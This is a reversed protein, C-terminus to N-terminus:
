RVRVVRLGAREFLAAAEGEAVVAEIRSERAIGRGDPLSRQGQVLELTVRRTLRDVTFLAEAAEVTELLLGGAARREARVGRLRDQAVGDIRTLTWGDPRRSAAGGLLANVSGRVQELAQPDRSVPGAPSPEPAEESGRVATPAAPPSAPASPAVSEPAPAAAPASPERRALNRPRGEPTLPSAAPLPAAPSAAAPAERMPERVPGPVGERAAERAAEPAAARPLGELGMAQAALRKRLETNDRRQEELERELGRMRPEVLASEQTLLRIEDQLAVLRLAEGQAAAAQRRLGDVEAEKAGLDRVRAAASEREADLREQLTRARQESEGLQAALREAEERASRTAEERGTQLLGALQEAELTGERAGAGDGRIAMVLAWTCLVMVACLGLLLLPVMRAGPGQPPQSLRELLREQVTCLGRFAENLGKVNALVLESRDGRQLAEMLRAQLTSVGELAQANALFAAELDALGAGRMRAAGSRAVALRAGTAQEGPLDLADPAGAHPLPHPPENESM